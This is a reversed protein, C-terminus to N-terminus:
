LLVWAPPTVEIKVKRNTAPHPFELSYAFLAIPQRAGKAPQGYKIDGGIPHGIHALHVRIQNKRGTELQVRLLSKGCEGQEAKGTPTEAGIV